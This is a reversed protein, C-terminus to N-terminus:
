ATTVTVHGHQAIVDFQIRAVRAITEAGAHIGAQFQQERTSASDTMSQIADMVNARIAALQNPDIEVIPMAPTDKGSPHVLAFGEFNHDTLTRV